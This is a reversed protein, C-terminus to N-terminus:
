CFDNYYLYTIIIYIFVSTAYINSL